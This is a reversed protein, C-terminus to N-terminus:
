DPAPTGEPVDGGDGGGDGDRDPDVLQWPGRRVGDLDAVASPRRPESPRAAQKRLDAVVEILQQAAQENGQARLASASKLLLLVERSESM